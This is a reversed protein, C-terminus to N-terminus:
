IRQLNSSGVKHTKVHARFGVGLADAAKSLSECHRRMKARDLVLAPKPVQHINKGVYFQKLTELSPTLRQPVSM